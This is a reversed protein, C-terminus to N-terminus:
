PHGKRTAFCRVFADGHAELPPHEQCADFRTPCRPAFRCGTPMHAFNPAEGPLRAAKGDARTRQILCGVLGRTYPHLPDDVVTSTEEIIEGAYLVIARAALKAVRRVDHSIVLMAFPRRAREEALVRLVDERTTADLMATPEDAVLLDPEGVLAAALLVRQQMGGSLEHPFKDFLRAANPLGVRELCTIAQDRADARSSKRHLRLPEVVHAGVTMVPNMSANPEQPVFSIRAGRLACLERESATTLERGDFVISRATMRAHSPLLQLVCAALLSKGAGSEGIIALTESRGVSFSVDSLIDLPTGAGEFSLSLGDVRLLADDVRRSM